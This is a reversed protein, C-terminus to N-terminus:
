VRNRCGQFDLQLGVLERFKDEFARAWPIDRAERSSKEEDSELISPPCNIAAHQFCHNGFRASWPAKLTVLPPPGLLPVASCPAKGRKGPTCTQRKWMNLKEMLKPSPETAKFSELPDLPVSSTSLPVRILKKQESWYISVAHVWGVFSVFYWTGRKACVMCMQIFCLGCGWPAGEADTGELDKYCCKLIREHSVNM